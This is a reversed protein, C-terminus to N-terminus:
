LGTKLGEQDTGQGNGMGYRRRGIELLIDMSGDWWVEWERPGQIETPIRLTDKFGKAQEIRDEV